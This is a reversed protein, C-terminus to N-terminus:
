KIKKAIFNYIGAFVWGVVYGSIFTLIVLMLGNILNAATIKYIPDLFHLMFVWNLMTQTASPMISIVIAWVAHILAFFIGLTLGLRNKSIKEAM